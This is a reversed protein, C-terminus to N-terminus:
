AWLPDYALDLGHGFFRTASREFGPTLDSVSFRHEGVSAGLHLLGEDALRTRVAEAVIGPGDVVDVQEGLVRRMAAMALPYHTCGPILADIAGASGPTWGAADLYSLLVPDMLAHDQWGEEVLPALLPTAWEEVM